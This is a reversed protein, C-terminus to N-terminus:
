EVYLPGGQMKYILNIGATTSSGTTGQNGSVESHSVGATMEFGPALMYRLAFGGFPGDGGYRDIAWGGYADAWFNRALPASASASLAHVERDRIGLPLFTGGFGDPYLQRSWVYEGEVEYSLGASWGFFNHVYRLSAFFGASKAVWDDRNVGYRTVRATGEAWLGPFLRQAHRLVIQDQFAEDAAAETTEGYSAHYVSFFETERYPGRDLFSFRAGPGAEGYLAALRTIDGGEARYVVGVVGSMVNKDVDLTTGDLQQVNKGTAHTGQLELEMAYRGRLPLIANAIVDVVTGGEFDRYETALAFQLGTERRAEELSGRLDEDWPLEARALAYYREAAQWDGVSAEIGARTRLVFPNGPNEMWLRALTERARRTDGLAAALRAREAALQLSATGLRPEIRLVFGDAEPFVSFQVPERGRIVASDYGSYAFEVWEPLIGPLQEFLGSPAPRAFDLVIENLDPIQRSGRLPLASFRLEAQPARALLVFAAEGGSVMSFASPSPMLGPRLRMPEGAGMLGLSLATMAICRTLKQVRKRLPTWGYALM